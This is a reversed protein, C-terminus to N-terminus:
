PGASSAPTQSPSTKHVYDLLPADGDLTKRALASLEEYSLNLETLAREIEPAIERSAVRSTTNRNAVGAALNAFLILALIMLVSMVLAGVWSNHTVLFTVGIILAAPILGVLCGLNFAQTTAHNAEDIIRDNWLVLRQALEHRPDTEMETQNKDTM